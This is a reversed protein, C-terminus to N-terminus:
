ESHHLVASVALQGKYHRREDSKCVNCFSPIGWSTTGPTVAASAAAAAM